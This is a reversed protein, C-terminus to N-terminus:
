KTYSPHRRLWVGAFSCSGEPALDQERAWDYAAKMLASGIGRNELAPPVLTHQIDFCGNCICYEAYGVAGDEHIEFRNREPKHIVKYEKM